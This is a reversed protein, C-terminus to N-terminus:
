RVVEQISQGAAPVLAPAIRVRQGLRLQLWEFGVAATVLLLVTTM